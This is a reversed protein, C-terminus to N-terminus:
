RFARNAAWNRVECLNPFFRCISLWRLQFLQLIFMSATKFILLYYFTQGFIFYSLYKINLYKLNKFNPIDSEVFVKKNLFFSRLLMFAM